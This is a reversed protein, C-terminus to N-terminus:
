ELHLLRGAAEHLGEGQDAGPLGFGQGESRIEM